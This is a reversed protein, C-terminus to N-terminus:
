RTCRALLDDRPEIANEFRVAPETGNRTRKLELMPRHLVLQRLKLTEPDQQRRDEQEDGRENEVDRQRSRQRKLPRLDGREFGEAVAVHGDAPMVQLPAEGDTGATDDNADNGACEEARHDDVEVVNVESKRLQTEADWRTNDDARGHQCKKSGASSREAGHHAGHANWGGFGSIERYRPVAPRM